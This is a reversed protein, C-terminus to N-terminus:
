KARVKLTYGERLIYKLRMDEIGQHCERCLLGGVEDILVGPAQECIYCLKQERVRVKDFQNSRM